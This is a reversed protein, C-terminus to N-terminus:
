DFALITPFFYPLRRHGRVFFVMSPVIAKAIATM